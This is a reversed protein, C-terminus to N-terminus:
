FSYKRSLKLPILHFENISEFIWIDYKNENYSYERQTESALSYSIGILKYLDETEFTLSYEQLILFTNRINRIHFKVNVLLDRIGYVSLFNFMMRIHEIM